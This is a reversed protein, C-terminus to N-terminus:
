ENYIEKSPLYKMIVIIDCQVISDIDIIMIFQVINSKLLDPSTFGIFVLDAGRRFRRPASRHTIM